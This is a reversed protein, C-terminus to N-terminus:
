DIDYVHARITPDHILVYDVADWFQSIRHDSLAEDRDLRRGWEPDDGYDAAAQVLSAVPGDQGPMPGVRCGFTAKDTDFDRAWGLIVDIRVDRIGEHEHCGAFYVAHPEGYWTLQGHVLRYQGRCDACYLESVSREPDFALSV